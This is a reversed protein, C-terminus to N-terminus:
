RKLVLYAVLVGGILWLVNIGGVSPLDFGSMAVMGRAELGSGIKKARNPLPWAVDSGLGLPSSFTRKLHGPVPPDIENKSPPTEFYDYMKRLPNWVSYVM